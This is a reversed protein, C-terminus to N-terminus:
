ISHVTNTGTFYVRGHCTDIGKEAYRQENKEPVQDTSPRKFAMLEPWVIHSDGVVKEGHMNRAYDVAATGGILM